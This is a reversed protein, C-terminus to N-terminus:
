LPIRIAVKLGGHASRALRIKGGHGHVIDMVTPLGLGVGGTETNRSPDVRYFPKFVDDYQDEPIGPGNDEVDIKFFGDESRAAVWVADAYQAANSVLNILCREFAMPRLNMSLDPAADIYLKLGEAEARAMIKQLLPYVAVRTVAEDGDGRVFDIYGAIMREMDAIDDKMAAIDKSDGLMALQLKMRTLPTRLDHSVGALMATRQDMQRRIRQHMELFAETAQRVERAGEPKLAFVDRGKGFREAAAALKRIPRIQNRMFLIAILLLLLSGSFMWLLFIYGTSSYLRRQPLEVRLLGQPLEVWITIVHESFNAVVHFPLSIQKDLEEILARESMAEWSQIYRKIPTAELREGQKFTVNLSLYQGLSVFNRADIQALDHPLSDILVAVEGAVAYALRSSMRDWHRDFFAFTTIVQILLVPVILILLSRGFLTRPLLRKLGLSPLRWWRLRERRAM